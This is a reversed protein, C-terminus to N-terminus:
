SPRPLVGAGLKPRITRQLSLLVTEEGGSADRFGLKFSTHTIFVEFSVRTNTKTTPSATFMECLAAASSISGGSRAARRAYVCPDTEKCGAPVSSQTEATIFRGM